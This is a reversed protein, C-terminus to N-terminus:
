TTPNEVKAVEVKANAEYEKGLGQQLQWTKGVVGACYAFFIQPDIMYHACVLLGALLLLSAERDSQVKRSKKQVEAM